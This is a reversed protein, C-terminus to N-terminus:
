NATVGERLERISNKAIANIFEDKLNVIWGPLKEPENFSWKGSTFRMLVIHTKNQKDVFSIHLLIEEQTVIRNVYINFTGYTTELTEM